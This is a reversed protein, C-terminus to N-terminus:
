EAGALSRHLGPQRIARCQLSRENRKVLLVASPKFLWWIRGKWFIHSIDCPQKNYAAKKIYSTREDPLM